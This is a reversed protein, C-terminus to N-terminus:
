SHKFPKVVNKAHIDDCFSTKQVFDHKGNYLVVTFTAFCVFKVYFIM